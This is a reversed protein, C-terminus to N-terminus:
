RAAFAGRWRSNIVRKNETDTLRTRKKNNDNTTYKLNWMYSIDHLIQRERDSKNWKAYTGGLGDIHNCFAFNWEKKHSLMYKNTHTYLVAKDMWRNTSMATAGMVQFNNITSSHVSWKQHRWLQSTQIIQITFLIFLSQSKSDKESFDFYSSKAM